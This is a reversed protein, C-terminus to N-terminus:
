KNVSYYRLCTRVLDLQSTTQTKQFISKLQTRLTEKSVGSRSAFSNLTDDGLLATLLRAEAASLRFRHQLESLSPTPRSISERLFIAALPKFPDAMYAGPAPAVFIEYPPQGVARDLRMAGGPSIGTVSRSRCADAILRHFLDSDKPWTTELAAGKIKLGDGQEVVREAGKNMFVPEAASNVVLLMIEHTDLALEAAQARAELVAIQRNLQVVRMIHPALRQLRDIADPDAAETHRPYLVSISLFRSGDRQLVLGVGTALGQPRLWDNFFETRTLEASSVLFEASKAIGLPQRMVRAQWPNKAAYHADYSHVYGEEWGAASNSGGSKSFPDHLVLAGRGGAYSASLAAVFRDWGGEAGAGDYLASLLLGDTQERAPAPNQRDISAEM